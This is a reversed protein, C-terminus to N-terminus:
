REPGPEVGCQDEYYMTEECNTANMQEPYVPGVFGSRNLKRTARESLYTDETYSLFGECTHMQGNCDQGGVERVMNHLMEHVITRAYRRETTSDGGQWQRIISTKSGGANGGGRVPVDDGPIVVLFHSGTNAGITERNYFERMVMYGGVGFTTNGDEHVWEDISRDTRQEDTVHVDIGTEGDPNRVPMERFWEKTRSFVPLPLTEDAGRLYLVHVFADKHLPDAEAINAGGDTEGRVEWGDLLQDGDTDRNAPDTPGERERPDSLGDGDSDKATPNLGAEVEAADAIGDGDSDKSAPDSRKWEFPSDTGVGLSDYGRNGWYEESDTLGDGDTDAVTPDSGFGPEVDDDLGDGDTDASLPDTAGVEERTPIGDGDVDLLFASGAGVALVVVFLGAVASASPPKM